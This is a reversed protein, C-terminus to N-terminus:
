VLKKGCKPCYNFHYTCEDILDKSLIFAHEHISCGVGYEHKCINAGCWEKTGKCKYYKTGSILLWENYACDNCVDSKKIEEHLYNYVKLRESIKNFTEDSLPYIKENSM